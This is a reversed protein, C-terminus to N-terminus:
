CGETKNSAKDNEEIDSRKEIESEILKKLSEPDDVNVGRRVFEATIFQLEKRYRGFQELKPALETALKVYEQVLWNYRDKLELVDVTELNM